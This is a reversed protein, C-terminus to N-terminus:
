KLSAVTALALEDHEKMALEMQKEVKTAPCHVSTKRGAVWVERLFFRDGHRHFVVASKPSPDAREDPVTATVLRQGSGELILRRNSEVRVMYTGAAFHRSGNEFQFPVNVRLVTVGPQAHGVSALSCSTLLLAFMRSRVIRRVFSTM